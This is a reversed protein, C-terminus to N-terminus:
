IRGEWVRFKKFESDNLWRAWAKDDHYWGERLAQNVVARPVEAVHRWEKGPPKDRLMSCEDMISQCDQEETLYFGGAGDDQVYSKFDGFEAILHKKNSM